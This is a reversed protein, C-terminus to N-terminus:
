SVATLFDSKLRPLLAQTEPDGFRVNFELTKIKGNKIEVVKTLDSSSIEDTGDKGHVLWASQTGLSLLTKAM